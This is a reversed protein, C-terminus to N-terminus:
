AGRRTLTDARHQEYWERTAVLENFTFFHFGAIGWREDGVHPAVDDYFRAASDLPSRFLRTLGRQKRVFRLSPGVGIRMSIELLRRREIPGVAGVYVPLDIGRGRVDDLWALLAREDFCLQTVVYDAQEAKEELVANLVATDILPHGEPYGGIGIRRPRLRHAGLVDLLEGASAYPGLPRPADGGIVFFDDIGADHARGLLEDLHSEGLVMRAAVHVTLRHGLERLRVAVEVSRDVGHKPSTTVTLRLPTGVEAAQAEGKGLPLIEYRPEAAESGSSRAFELPLAM